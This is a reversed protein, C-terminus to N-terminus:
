AVFGLQCGNAPLMGCGPKAIHLHVLVAAAFRQAYITIEHLKTDARVGVRDNGITQGLLMRIHLNDGANPQVITSGILTGAAINGAGLKVDEDLLRTKQSHRRRGAIGRRGAPIGLIGHLIQIHMLRQLSLHKGGLRHHEARGIDINIVAAAYPHGLDDIVAAMAVFTLLAIPNQNQFVGVAVPLRIGLLHKVLAAINIGRM